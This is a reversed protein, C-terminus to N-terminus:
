NKTQDTGDLTLHSPCSPQSASPMAAASWLRRVMESTPKRSSSATSPRRLALAVESFRRPLEAVKATPLLTGGTGQTLRELTEKDLDPTELGVAHVTIAHNRCRATLESIEPGGVTDRGDTFVVIAKPGSRSQLDRIAQDVAQRLATNGGPELHRLSRSLSGLDQSWDAVTSIRSAFALVKITAIGQVERILEATGTEAATMALGATSNSHDLLLIVQIPRSPPTLSAIFFPNEIRSGTWLRFDKLALGSLTQGTPVFVALDVVTLPPASNPDVRLIAVRTGSPLCLPQANSLAREWDALHRVLDSTDLGHKAAVARAADYNAKRLPNNPDLSDGWEILMTLTAQAHDTVAKAM